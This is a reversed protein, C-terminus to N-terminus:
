PTFSLLDFSQIAFDNTSGFFNSFQSGDQRYVLRIQQNATSMAPYPFSDAYQTQNYTVLENNTLRRLVLKYTWTGIQGPPPTVPFDNRPSFDTTPSNEPVKTKGTDTPPSATVQESAANPNSNRTADYGPADRSPIPPNPLDLLQVGCSGYDTDDYSWFLEMDFIAPNIARFRFSDIPRRLVTTLGDVQLITYPGQATNSSAISNQNTAIARYYLCELQALLQYDSIHRYLSQYDYRCQIEDYICEQYCTTLYGYVSQPPNRLFSTSIPSQIKQINIRLELYAAKMQDSTLYVAGYDAFRSSSALITLAM